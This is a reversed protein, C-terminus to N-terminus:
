KDLFRTLQNGTGMRNGTADYTYNQKEDFRGERKGSIDYVDQTGNGNDIIRGIRRGTNDYFDRVKTAM